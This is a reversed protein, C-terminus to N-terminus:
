RPILRNTKSTVKNNGQLLSWGPLLQTRLIIGSLTLWYFKWEAAITEEVFCEKSKGPRQSAGSCFLIQITHRTPSTLPWRLEISSRGTWNAVEKTWCEVRVIERWCWRKGLPRRSQWNGGALLLRPLPPPPSPIFTPCRHLWTRAMEPIEKDHVPVENLVSRWFHLSHPISPLERQDIFDIWDRKDMDSMEWEITRRNSAM